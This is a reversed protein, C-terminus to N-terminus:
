LNNVPTDKAHGRGDSGLSDVVSVIQYFGDRALLATNAQAYVPLRAREATLIRVVGSPLGVCMGHRSLWAFANSVQYQSGNVSLADTDVTDFPLYIQSDLVAASDSCKVLKMESPNDGRLFFVEQRTSVYLGDSVAGFGTIYGPAVIFNYRRDHQSYNIPQSYFITDGQVVWLRGAFRALYRGFPMPQLYTRPDVVESDLDQPPVTPTTGFDEVTLAATVVGGDGGNSFYVEDNIEVYWVRGRGSIFYNMSILSTGGVLRFLESGVFVLTLSQDAKTWMSHGGAVGPLAVFEPRTDLKGSDDIDWNVIRRAFGNPIATEDAVHHEGGGFSLPITPLPAENPTPSQAM